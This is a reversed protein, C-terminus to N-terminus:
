LFTLLKVVQPVPDSLTGAPGLDQEEPNKSSSELPSDETDKEKMLGNGNEEVIVILFPFFLTFVDKECGSVCDIYHCLVVRAM